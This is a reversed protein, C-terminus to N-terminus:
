LTRCHLPRFALMTKLAGSDSTTSIITEQPDPYCDPGKCSPDWFVDIQCGAMYQKLTQSEKPVHVGWIIPLSLPSRFLYWLGSLRGELVTLYGTGGDVRDIYALYGSGTDPVM